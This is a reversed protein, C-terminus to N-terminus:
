VLKNYHAWREWHIGLLALRGYHKFGPKEAMRRAAATLRSQLKYYRSLKEQRAQVNKMTIM